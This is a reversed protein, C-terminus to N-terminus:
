RPIPPPLAVGSQMKGKARETGSETRKKNSSTVFSAALAGGSSITYIEEEIESPAVRDSSMAGDEIPQPFM